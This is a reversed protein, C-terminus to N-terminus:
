KGKLELGHQEHAQKAGRRNGNALLEELMEGQRRVQERLAELEGNTASGAAMPKVRLQDLLIEAPDAIGLIKLARKAFGTAGPPSNGAARVRSCWDLHATATTHLYSLWLSRAKEIVVAESAGVPESDGVSERNRDLLVIGRNGYHQLLHEAFRVQILAGGVNLEDPVEFWGEAPCIVEYNACVHIDDATDPTSPISYSLSFSWKEGANYFRYRGLM